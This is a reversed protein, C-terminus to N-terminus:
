KVEQLECDNFEEAVVISGDYRESVKEAGRRTLKRVLLLGNRRVAFQYNM